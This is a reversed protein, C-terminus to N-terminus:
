MMTRPQSRRHTCKRTCIVDKRSAPRETAEERLCAQRIKAAEAGSARKQLEEIEDESLMTASSVVSSARKKLADAFKKMCERGEKSDICERVIKAADSSASDIIRKKVEEETVSDAGTRGEFSAKARRLCDKSSGKKVCSSVFEAIKTQAAEKLSVQVEITDVAERGLNSKLRKKAIELCSKFKEKGASKVCASM